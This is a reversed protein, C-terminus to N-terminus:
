LDVIDKVRTRLAFLWVFIFSLGFASIFGMLFLGM